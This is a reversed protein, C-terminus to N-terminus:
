AWFFYSNVKNREVSFRHFYSTVFHHQVEKLYHDIKHASLFNCELAFGQWFSDVGNEPLIEGFLPWTGYLCPYFVLQMALHIMRCFTVHFLEQMRHYSMIYKGKRSSRLLYLGQTKSRMGVRDHRFQCVRVNSPRTTLVM